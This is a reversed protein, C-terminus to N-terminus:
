KIKLLKAYYDIEEMTKKDDQMAFRAKFIIQSAKDRWAKRYNATEDDDSWISRKKKVRGEGIALALFELIDEKTNPIPYTSLFRAQAEMISEDRILFNWFGSKNTFKEEIKQLENHLNMISSITEIGRFEFNCDLCKTQFPQVIAGCNPCKKVEGYKNSKSAISPPTETKKMSQQKEHLRADLIMEFEDLDVGEKEAKKFLIQKEKETLAGDILAAEILKELEPSHM